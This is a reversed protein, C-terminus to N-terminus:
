ASELDLSEETTRDFLHLKDAPLTLTVDQGAQAAQDVPLKAVLDVEGAHLHVLQEDGLYEVVDVEAAIKVDGDRGLRLHEPRFGVVVAEANARSAVREPLEIRFGDRRLAAGDREAEVLNM